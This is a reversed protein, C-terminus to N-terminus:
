AEENERIERDIEERHSGVYAWANALDEARLTPYATLLEAETTGIRRAQELLWVPIRTRVIRAVGGCVNETSEVGPFADGLNRVLKQLLQVKEAQSMSSLLKEAEIVTNMTPRKCEHSELHIQRVKIGFKELQSRVEGIKREFSDGKNINLASFILEDPRIEKAFDAMNKFDTPKYLSDSEKVEGIIFQGDKICVIDLDGLRRARDESAGKQNYLDLQPSFIFSTKSEELLKGLTLVVPILHQEIGAKVSSNLHFYWKQDKPRLAFRQGCGKCENMQRVEDIHYWFYYGCQPCKPKLGVRLINAEIFTSIHSEISHWEADEGLDKAIREFDEYILESEKGFWKRAEKLITEISDSKEREKRQYRDLIKGIKNEAQTSEKGSSLKTFVERWYKLSFVWYAQSLGSFLKLLGILNPGKDVLAAEYIRRSIRETSIDGIVLSYFLSHEGPLNIILYHDRRLHQTSDGSYMLASPLRYSTVRAHRGEFIRQAIHNRKPFQWWFQRGSIGSIHDSRYQIYVDEMWHGHSIAGDKTRPFKTALTIREGIAPHFESGHPPELSTTGPMFSPIEPQSFVQFKVSLSQDQLSLKEAIERLQDESLSHSVFHIPRGHECLYRALKKFWGPFVKQLIPENALVTPLWIESTGTRYSETLTMPHNWFHAIDEWSDGIVVTFAEKEYSSKVVPHNRPTSCVQIPYVCHWSKSIEVIANKLSSVDSVNFKRHVDEIQQLKAETFITNDYGGFNRLLFRKLLPPSSSDTEFTVFTPRDIIPFAGSLSGLNEPTPFVRLGEKHSLPIQFRTNPDPEKPTVVELPAVSFNIREALEDSLKVLSIVVDPDFGVLFSWWDDSINNGDTFIIPAFRGGWRQVTYEVISDFQEDQLRNADVLFAVRVPRSRTYISFPNM